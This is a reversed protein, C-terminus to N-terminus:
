FKHTLTVGFTRPANFIRYGADLPAGDNTATVVHEENFMNKIWFALEWGQDNTAISARGDFVWNAQTFLYPTNLAEQYASSGFTGTFQIAGLYKDFIGHEYRATGNFTVDPADPLKNGAPEITPGGLNEYPFAGLRTHLLGLGTRLSL